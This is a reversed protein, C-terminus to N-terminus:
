GILKGIVDWLGIIYTLPLLMAIGIPLAVSSLTFGDSVIFAGVLLPIATFLWLTKLIEDRSQSHLYTFVFAVLVLFFNEYM